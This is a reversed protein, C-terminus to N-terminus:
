VIAQERACWMAEMMRVGYQGSMQEGPQETMELVVLGILNTGDGLENKEVSDGTLIVSRPSKVIVTHMVVWFLLIVYGQM